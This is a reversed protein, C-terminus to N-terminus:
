RLYRDSLMTGYENLLEESLETNGKERAEISERQLRKWKKDFSEEIKTEPEMKVESMDEEQVEEQREKVAEETDANRLLRDAEKKMQEWSM